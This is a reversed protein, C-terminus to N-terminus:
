NTTVMTVCIDKMTINKNATALKEVILCDSSNVQNGKDQGQPKKEKEKRELASIRM